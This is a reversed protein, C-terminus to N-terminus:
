DRHYPHNALLTWARYLQEVLLVRALAHPLTLRSLSLTMQARGLLDPSLGDAGGIVLAIDRGSQLWDDLTLALERTTPEKGHEDLAVLNYGPPLKELIRAAELTKIREASQGSRKEPRIPVVEVRAERPMRKVYEAAATEAWAPLKDGVALILLKM